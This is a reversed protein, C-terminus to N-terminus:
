NFSPTLIEFALEDNLNIFRYIKGDRMFLNGKYDGLNPEEHILNFDKDFISLVGNWETKGDPKRDKLFSIRYYLNSNKDFMFKGFHPELSRADMAEKFAEFTGVNRAYNGPKKAPLLETQYSYVSLSDNEVDYVSIGNISAQSSLIKQGNISLFSRDGATSQGEKQELTIKYEELAKLAPIEILKLKQTTLDLIVIGDQQPKNPINAATYNGYYTKGDESYQDNYFGLPGNELQQVIEQDETWNIEKKKKGDRDFSKIGGFVMFHYDGNESVNTSGIGMQGIGNPGEAELSLSDLYVLNVLDIIDLRIFAENFVYLKDSDASLGAGMLGDNLFLLEDKSDVLVTDLKYSFQFDEENSNGNKGSQSCAYFLIPILYICSRKM